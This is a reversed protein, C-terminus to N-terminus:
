LPALKAMLALAELVALSVRPLPLLMFPPLPLSRHLLPVSCWDCVM